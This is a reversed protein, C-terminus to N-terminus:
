VQKNTGRTESGKMTSMVENHKPLNDTLSETESCVSRLILTNLTVNAHTVPLFSTFGVTAMLVM